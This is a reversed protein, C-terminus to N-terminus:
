GGWRQESSSLLFEPFRPRSAWVTKYQSNHRGWCDGCINIQNIFTLCYNVWTWNSIKPCRLVFGPVNHILVQCQAHSTSDNWGFDHVRTEDVLVLLLGIPAHVKWSASHALFIHFVQVTRISVYYKCTTCTYTGPIKYLTIIKQPYIHKVVSRLRSSGNSWVKDVENKKESKITVSMFLSVTYGSHWFCYIRYESVRTM